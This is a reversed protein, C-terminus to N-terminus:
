GNEILNTNKKLPQLYMGIGRILKVMKGGSNSIGGSSLFYPPDAFIVDVTSEKIENNLIDFSDGHYITTTDDSFYIKSKM